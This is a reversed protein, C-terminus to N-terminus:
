TTLTMFSDGAPSLRMCLQGHSAKFFVLMRTLRTQGELLPTQSVCCISASLVDM